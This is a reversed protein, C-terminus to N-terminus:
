PPGEEPLRYEQRRRTHPHGSANRAKLVGGLFCGVILKIDVKHM